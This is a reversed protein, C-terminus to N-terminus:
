RSFLPKSNPHASYFDQISEKTIVENCYDGEAVNRRAKVWPDESHTLNSLEEGTLNELNSLVTDIIIAESDNIRNCTASLNLEGSGVIFKGKHM